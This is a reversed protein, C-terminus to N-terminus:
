ISVVLRHTGGDLPVRVHGDSCPLPSGDLIAHSVGRSRHSPTDISIDYRTSGLNVVAEFGPWLAPSCPDIAIFGGERRLGLIGEYFAAALGPEPTAINAVIRKVAM